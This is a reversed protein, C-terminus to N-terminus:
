KVKTILIFTLLILTILIAYVIYAGSPPRTEEKETKVPPPDPM